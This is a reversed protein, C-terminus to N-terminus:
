HHVVAAWCCLEQAAAIVLNTVKTLDSGQVQWM